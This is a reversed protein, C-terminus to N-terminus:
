INILLEILGFKALPELSNAFQLLPVDASVTAMILIAPLSAEPNVGMRVHQAMGGAVHQGIGAGVRPQDLGEKAMAVDPVRCVVRRERRLPQGAHAHSLRIRNSHAKVTKRGQAAANVAAKATVCGKLLM